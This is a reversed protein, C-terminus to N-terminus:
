KMLRATILGSYTAPWALVSAAIESRSPKVPELSSDIAVSHGIGILLYICIIFFTKM